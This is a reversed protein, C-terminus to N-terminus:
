FKVPENTAPDLLELSGVVPPNTFIAEWNALNTSAYLIVLGHGSLGRLRLQLGRDTMQLGSASGDFLLPPRNVALTAVSTLVSGLTNSAVCQYSGACTLALNSLTLVAATAGAINTGDFQWQYTM